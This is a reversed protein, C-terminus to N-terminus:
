LILKKMENATPIVITKARLQAIRAEAALDWKRKTAKSADRYATRAALVLAMVDKETRAMGIVATIPPRKYVKYRGV